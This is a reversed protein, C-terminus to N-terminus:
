ITACNFEFNIPQLNKSGAFEYWIQAITINKLPHQRDPILDALPCLVHACTLIDSHPINNAAVDVLDGYLLVDMDLGHNCHKPQKHNRGAKTEVQRIWIRLDVLALDCNFVVVMNFFDPGDLGVAGAQYVPSIQIGSFRQKLQQIGTRLSTTPDLNAGLGLFVRISSM